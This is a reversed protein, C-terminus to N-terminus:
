EVAGPTASDSGAGAEVRRGRSDRGCRRRVAAEAVQRDHQDGGSADDNMDCDGERRAADDM